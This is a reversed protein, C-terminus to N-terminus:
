VKDLLCWWCGQFVEKRYSCCRFPNGTLVPPCRLSYTSIKCRKPIAHPHNARCYSLLYVLHNRTSVTGKRSTTIRYIIILIMKSGLNKDRLQRHLLELMFVFVGPLFANGKHLMQFGAEETLLAFAISRQDLCTFHWFVMGMKPHTVSLLIWLCKAAPCSGPGM